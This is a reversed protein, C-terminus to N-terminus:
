ITKTYEKIIEGYGTSIDSVNELGMRQFLKYSRLDDFFLKDLTKYVENSESDQFKEFEEEWFLESKDHFVKHISPKYTISKMDEVWEYITNEEGKGFIYLKRLSWFYSPLPPLAWVPANFIDLWLAM